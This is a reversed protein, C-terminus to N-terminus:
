IRAVASLWSERDMLIDRRTGGMYPGILGLQQLEDLMETARKFDMSFERQLMSVAVRQRDIFLLGCDRVLAARESLEAAGADSPEADSEPEFEISPQEPVVEVIPEPDTVLSLQQDVARSAPVLERVPLAVSEPAPDLEQDELEFLTPQQVAKPEAAAPIAATEFESVEASAAQATHQDLDSDAGSEEDFEPEREAVLPAEPASAAIVPADAHPAATPPPTTADVLPDTSWSFGSEAREPSAARTGEAAPEFEASESDAVAREAAVPSAGPAESEWHPRPPLTPAEPEVELEGAESIGEWRPRAVDAIPAVPAPPDARRLKAAGAEPKATGTPERNAPAAADVGTAAAESGSGVREHPEVAVHSRAPQAGAPHGEAPRREAPDLAVPRKSEPDGYSALPRTGAPIGGRSRLDSMELATSSAVPLVGTRHGLASAEATTVGDDVSRRTLADHDAQSHVSNEDAEEAPVRVAVWTAALVLMIGSAFGAVGAALGGLTGQFYAGIEGGHGHTVAGLVLSLGIVVGFLGVALRGLTIPERRTLGAAGLAALGAALVLVPLGGLVEIIRQISRTWAGADPAVGASISMVVSVLLVAGVLLALSALGREVRTQTRIPESKMKM